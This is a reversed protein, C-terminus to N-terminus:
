LNAIKHSAHRSRFFSLNTIFPPHKVVLPKHLIKNNLLILPRKGQNASIVNSTQFFKIVIAV